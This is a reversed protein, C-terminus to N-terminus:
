MGLPKQEASAPTTKVNRTWQTVSIVGATRDIRCASRRQLPERHWEADSRKAGQM